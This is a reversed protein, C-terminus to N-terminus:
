GARRVPLLLARIVRIQEPDPDPADALAATVVRDVEADWEAKNAFERISHVDDPAQNM